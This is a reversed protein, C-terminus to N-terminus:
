YHLQHITQLRLKTLVIKKLANCFVVICMVFFFFKVQAGIISVFVLTLYEFYCNMLEGKFHTCYMSKHQRQLLTKDAVWASQQEQVHM